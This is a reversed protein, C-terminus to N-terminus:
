LGGWGLCVLEEWQAGTFDRPTSLRELTVILVGDALNRALSHHSDQLNAEGRILGMQTATRLRASQLGLLVNRWSIYSEALIM